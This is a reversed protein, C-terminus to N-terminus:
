FWIFSFMFIYLFVKSLGKFKRLGFIRLFHDFHYYFVWIAHEYFLIFCKPVLISTRFGKILLFICIFTYLFVKSIGKIGKFFVKKEFTYLYRQCRKLPIFPVPLGTGNGRVIVCKKSMSESQWLEKHCSALVNSIIILYGRLAFKHVCMLTGCHQWKSECYCVEQVFVWVTM